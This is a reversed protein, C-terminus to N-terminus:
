RTSEITRDRRGLVVDVIRDRSEGLHILPRSGESRFEGGEVAEVIAGGFDPGGTFRVFDVPGLDALGNEFLDGVIAPVGLVASEVFATSGNTVSVRAELLAEDIDDFEAVYEGWGREEYWAPSELPHLKVALSYGNRECTEVTNGVLREYATVVEPDSVGHSGGIFLVDTGPDRDSRRSALYDYWPSGVVHVTSESHLAEAFRERWAEGWIFVHMPAFFPLSLLRDSDPMQLGHQYAFRDRPTTSAVLYPMASFTHIRPDNVTLERLSERKLHELLVFNYYQYLATLSRYTDPKTWLRATLVASSVVSMALRVGGVQGHLRRHTTTPLGRKEWSEREDAAAPSCLLCVEEGEEQLAEAVELFSRTRYGHSSTMSFLHGGEPLPDIGDRGRVVTWLHKVRALLVYGVLVVPFVPSTVFPVEGAESIDSGRKKLESIRYGAYALPSAQFFDTLDPYVAEIPDEVPTETM